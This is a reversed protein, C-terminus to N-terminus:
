GTAGRIAAILEDGSATKSVFGAAGLRLARLRVRPEALCTFVVIAADCRSRLLPILALGDEGALDADLVILDPQTAGALELARRGCDAHGVVRMRPAESDILAGVGVLIARQDDVLLVRTPPPPSVTPM